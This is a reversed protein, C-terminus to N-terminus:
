VRKPLCFHVALFIGFWGYVVFLNVYWNISIFFGLREEFEKAMELILIIRGSAASMDALLM